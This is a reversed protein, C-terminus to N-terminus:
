YKVIYLTWLFATHGWLTKQSRWQGELVHTWVGKISQKMNVDEANKIFLWWTSNSQSCMQSSKCVSNSSCHVTLWILVNSRRKTDNRMKWSLDMNMQRPTLKEKTQCEPQVGFGLQTKFARRLSYSNWTNEKAQMCEMCITCNARVLTSSLQKNLRVLFKEFQGPKPDIHKSLGFWFHYITGKESVNVGNVCM